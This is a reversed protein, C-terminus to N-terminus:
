LNKEIQHAEFGTNTRVLKMPYIKVTLMDTYYDKSIIFGMDCIYQLRTELTEWDILHPNVSWPNIHVEYTGSDIWKSQWVFNFDNALSDLTNEMNKMTEQTFDVPKIQMESM